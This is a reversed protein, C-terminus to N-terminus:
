EKKFTNGHNSDLVNISGCEYCVFHSREKIKRYDLAYHIIFSSVLMYMFGFILHFIIHMKPIVTSIDIDAAFLFGLIFMDIGVLVLLVRFWKHHYLSSCSKKKKLSSKM